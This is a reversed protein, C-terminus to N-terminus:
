QKEGKRFEEETVGTKITMYDEKTVGWKMNKRKKDEILILHEVGMNDKWWTEGANWLAQCRLAWARGSYSGRHEAIIKNLEFAMDHASFEQQKVWQDGDPFNIVYTMFLVKTRKLDKFRNRGVKVVKM